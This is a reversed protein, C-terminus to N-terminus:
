PFAKDDPKPMIAGKTDSTGTIVLKGADAGTAPGPPTPFAVAQAEGLQDPELPLLQLADFNATALARLREPRNLYAWEAKQMAIEERLDAIADQATALDRLARQTAYNERYAWFALAMVALASTLYLFPKMM